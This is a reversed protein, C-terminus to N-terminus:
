VRTKIHAKKKIGHKIFAIEIEKINNKQLLLLHVFFNLKGPLEEGQLFYYYKSSLVM